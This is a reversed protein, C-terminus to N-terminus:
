TDMKGLFLLSTDYYTVVQYRIWRTCPPGDHVNSVPEPSKALGFVERLSLDFLARSQKAAVDGADFVSHGNWRDLREVFERSGEFDRQVLEEVGVFFLRQKIRERQEVALTVSGISAGAARIERSECV